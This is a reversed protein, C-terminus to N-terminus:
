MAAPCAVERAHAPTPQTLLALLLPGGETRPYALGVRAQGTAPLRILPSHYWSIEISDVGAPRWAARETWRNSSIRIAAFWPVSASRGILSDTLRLTQSHHELRALEVMLCMPFAGAAPEPGQPLESVTGPSPVALTAVFVLVALLSAAVGFQM